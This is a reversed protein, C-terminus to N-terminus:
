KGWMLQFYNRFSKALNSDRVLFAIPKEIMVFLVANPYIDIWNPSSFEKPLYKVETLKMKERLKGYEKADNNYMIKLKVKKQIRRKHFEQFRDEWKVNAIKPAGLVLLTENEKMESVLNERLNNIEEEGEFNSATQNWLVDFYKKFSSHLEKSKVEFCRFEKDWTFIGVMDRGYINIQIPSSLESSLAKLKTLKRQKDGALDTRKKMEALHEPDCLMLSKIGKKVRRKHFNYFWEKQYGEKSSTMSLGLVYYEEGPNLRQLMTDFRETASKFGTYVKVDQNWLSNFQNRYSDTIEKNNLTVLVPEKEQILLQTKKKGILVAVPSREKYPLEKIEVDQYYRKRYSEPIHSVHGQQFLLRSKVKKSRRYINFEKFFEVYKKEKGEVGFAAGIVDYTKNELENIFEYLKINVNKWGKIVSTEQNWLQEFQNRFSDAVEKNEILFVTPKQSMLNILTYNGAINVVAPSKPENIVYKIKTHPLKREVEGEEKFKEDFIIRAKLGKKARIKHIKTISNFYNKNQFSVVFALWEDDKKMSNMFHKFATEGGKTGKYIKAESRLQSLKQKLELEPVLKNLIIEQQKLKEKKEKLYDLIRKPDAAEFHKVGSKIVYSVLGKQILKELIEYIKSSSAGSKDVIPGTSSSSLELLALYVKIESKTLGIDELIEIYNEM